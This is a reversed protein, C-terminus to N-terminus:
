RSLAQHPLKKQSKPNRLGPSEGLPGLVQLHPSQPSSSAGRQVPPPSSTQPASPRPLPLHQKNPQPSRAERASRSLSSGKRHKSSLSPSHRKTFQPAEKNPLHHIPSRVSQHQLHHHGENLLPLLCLREERQLHLLLTDGRYQLLTDEQPLHAVVHLLLRLGLFFVDHFSLPGVPSSVSPM